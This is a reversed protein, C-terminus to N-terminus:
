ALQFSKPLVPIPKISNNSDPGKKPMNVEENNGCLVEGALNDRIGDPVVKTSQTLAYSRIVASEIM